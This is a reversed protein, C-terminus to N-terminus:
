ATGSVPASPSTVGTPNSGTVSTLTITQVGTPNDADTIQIDASALTQGTGITLEFDIGGTGSATFSSGGSPAAVPTSQAYLSGALVLLVGVLVTGPIRM